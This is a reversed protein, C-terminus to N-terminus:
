GLHYDEGYMVLGLKSAVSRSAGNTWSTGYIAVRGQGRVAEAWAAVVQVALGNGRYAPATEVGAAAARPTSRSSHCLSVVEGEPNRCVFVPRERATIRRLWELEPVTRLERVDGLEEASSTAATMSPPFLFTPGREESLPVNGKALLERVGRLVPASPELESLATVVPEVTLAAEVEARVSENLAASLLWRNGAATRVLHLLPPSVSHDRSRVLLGRQDREYLLDLNTDAAVLPEITV